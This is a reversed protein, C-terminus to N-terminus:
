ELHRVLDAVDVEFDILDNLRKVNKPKNGIHAIPVTKALYLEHNLALTNSLLPYVKKHLM